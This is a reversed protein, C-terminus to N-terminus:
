DHLMEEVAIDGPLSRLPDRPRALPITDLKGVLEALAKYLAQRWSSGVSTRKRSNGKFDSRIM